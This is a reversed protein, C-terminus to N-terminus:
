RENRKDDDNDNDDRLCCCCQMASAAARFTPDLAYWRIVWDVCLQQVFACSGGRPDVCSLLLSRVLAFPTLTTITEHTDRTFFFLHLQIYRLSLKQQASRPRNVLLISLM